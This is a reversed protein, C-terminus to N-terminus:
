GFEVAVSGLDPFLCDSAFKLLMAPLQYAVEIKLCQFRQQLAEVSNVEWFVNIVCNFLRISRQNVHNGNQFLTAM